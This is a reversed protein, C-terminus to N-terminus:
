DNKSMDVKVKITAAPLCSKDTCAQCKVSAEVDGTAGAKRKIKATITIEKEYTNYDGVVKDVITKGKPYEISVAEAGTFTLLTKASELDPNGIPNAYIHYDKDIKVTVTVKQTGDAAAKEAKATVIVVKDTTKAGGKQAYGPMLMLCGILAVQLM